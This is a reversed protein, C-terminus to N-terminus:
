GAATSFIRLRPTCRGSAGVLLHLWHVHGLRALAAGFAPFAVLYYLTITAASSGKVASFASVIVLYLAVFPQAFLLVRSVPAWRSLWSLKWDAVVTSVLFDGYSTRRLCEILLMLRSPYDVPSWNTPLEQREMGPAAAPRHLNSESPSAPVTGYYSADGDAPNPHM